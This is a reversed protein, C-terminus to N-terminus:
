KVELKVMELSNHSANWENLLRVADSDDVEGFFYVASVGYVLIQVAEYFSPFRTTFIISGMAEKLTVKSLTDIIAPLEVGKILGRNHGCFLEGSGVGSDTRHQSIIVAGHKRDCDSLKAVAWATTAYFEKREPTLM